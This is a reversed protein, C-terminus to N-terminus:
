KMRLAKSEQYFASTWLSWSILWLIIEFEELSYWRKLFIGFGGQFSGPTKRYIRYM